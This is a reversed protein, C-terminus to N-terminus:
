SVKRAHSEYERQMQPTWLIYPVYGQLEDINLGLEVHHKRCWSVFAMSSMGMREAADKVRCREGPVPLDGEKGTLIKQWMNDLKENWLVQGITPVQSGWVKLMPIRYKECFSIVNKRDEQLRQCAVEITVYSSRFDM